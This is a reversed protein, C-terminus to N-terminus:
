LARGKADIIGPEPDAHLAYADGAGLKPYLKRVLPDHGPVVHDVSDALSIIRNFGTMMDEVDIVIPFPKGGLFNEYFHSTDSALVVWGRRTRVRVCQLGRSHGGILHTEVGPAVEASGSIFSVRGAYLARVMDCIHDGTFPHRIHDACMCPGTAFAMEAEQVWLGANPFERLSGAHDFHLHTLIVTDVSAPDIGRAALIRGPTDFISRGRRGAEDLDYGTDVVIRRDGNELVWIFFDIPHHDSAHDDMLFNNGRVRDTMEAYRLATIDWTNSM